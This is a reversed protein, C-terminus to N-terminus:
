NKVNPTKHTFFYDRDSFGDGNHSITVSQTTRAKTAVTHWHFQNQRQLFTKKLSTRWFIQREQKSAAWTVAGGATGVMQRVFAHEFTHHAPMVPQHWFNAFQCKLALNFSVVQWQAHDRVHVTVDGTTQRSGSGLHAQAGKYVRPKFASFNAALGTFVDNFHNLETAHLQKVVLGHRNRHRENAGGTGIGFAVQRHLAFRESLVCQRNGGGGLVATTKHNRLHLADGLTARQVRATDPHRANQHITHHHRLRFVVRLVEVAAVVRRKRRLHTHWQIFDRRHWQILALHNRAARSKLQQGIRHDIQANTHRLTHGCHGVFFFDQLVHGESGLGAHNAAHGGRAHIKTGGGVRVRDNVHVLLKIKVIAAPQVQSTQPQGLTVGRAADIDAAKTGFQGTSTAEDVDGLVAAGHHKDAGEGGTAQLNGNFVPLQLDDLFPARALEDVFYFLDCEAARIRGFIPM